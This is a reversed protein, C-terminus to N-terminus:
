AVVTDQELERLIDETTSRQVPTERGLDEDKRLNRDAERGIQERAPRDLRIVQNDRDQVTRQQKERQSRNDPIEVRALGLQSL